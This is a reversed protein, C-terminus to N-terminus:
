ESCRTPGPISDPVETDAALFESWYVVSNKYTIAGVIIRKIWRFVFKKLGVSELIKLQALAVTVTTGIIDM